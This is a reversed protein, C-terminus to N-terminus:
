KKKGIGRQIRVGAMNEELTFLLSYESASELVLEKKSEKITWRDTKGPKRSLTCTYPGPELSSISFTGHEDLERLTTKGYQDTLTAIYDSFQPQSSQLLGGHKLTILGFITATKYLQINHITHSSLSSVEQHYGGEPKAGFPMSTKELLLLAQNQSVNNIRYKGKQDTMLQRGDYTIVVNPVGQGFIDYVTGSITKTKGHRKDPMNITSNISSNLFFVDKAGANLVIGAGIQISTNKKTLMLNSSATAYQSIVMGPQLVLSASNRLAFKRPLLIDFDSRLRNRMQNPFQEYTYELNTSYFNRFRYHLAANYHNIIRRKGSYTSSLKNMSASLRFSPGDYALQANFNQDTSVIKVNQRVHSGRTGVSARLYPTLRLISNIQYSNRAHYISQHTRGYFNLNARVSLMRPNSRMSIRLIQTSKSQPTFASGAAFAYLNLSTNEHYSRLNFEGAFSQLSQPRYALSSLKLKHVKSTYSASTRQLWNLQNDTKFITNEMQLALAGLDKTFTNYSIYSITDTDRLKLQQAWSLSAQNTHHTQSVSLGNFNNPLRLYFDSPFSITGFHLQTPRGSIFYDRQVGLRYLYRHFNGEWLGQSSAFLRLHDYKNIEHVFEIQNYMRNSGILGANYHNYSSRLQMFSPSNRWEKQLESSLVTANSVVPIQEGTSRVEIILGQQMENMGTALNIRTRNDSEYSEGPALYLKVRKRSFVEYLELEEGINGKNEILIRTRTHTGERSIFHPMYIPTAVINHYVPVETTITREMFVGKKTDMLDITIHHTGARAQASPVIIICAVKASRPLIEIEMNLNLLRWGAPLYPFAVLHLTDSSSNEIRFMLTGNKGPAITPPVRLVTSHLMAKSSSARNKANEKTGHPPDFPAARLMNSCLAFGLLLLALTATHRRYLHM